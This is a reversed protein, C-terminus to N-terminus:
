PRGDYLESNRASPTSRVRYEIGEFKKGNIREAIWTDSYSPWIMSMPFPKSRPSDFLGQWEEDSGAVGMEREAECYWPELDDYSTPWDVLGAPFDQRGGYRSQMQFDSRLMRPTHGLWHWTSGGTRREYTSKYAQGPGAQPQDYYDNPGDPSPAKLDSEAEVYPSHLTKNAATAYMGVMQFRPRNRGGVEIMLVRACATALRYAVMGGAIGAGVVVVDFDGPKMHAIATRKGTSVALARLLRGFSWSCSRRYDVVGLRQFVGRADWISPCQSSKPEGANDVHVLASYNPLHGIQIYRRGLAGEQSPNHTNPRTEVHSLPRDYPASVSRFT